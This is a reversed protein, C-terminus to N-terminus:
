VVGGVLQEQLHYQPLSQHFLELGAGERFECAYVVISAPGTLSFITSLLPQVM